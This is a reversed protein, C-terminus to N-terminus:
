YRFMGPKKKAHNRPRPPPTAHQQRPKPPTTLRAEFAAWDEPRIRYSHRKGPDAVDISPLIGARPHGIEIWQIVTAYPVRVRRKIDIPKLFHLNAHSEGRSHDNDKRKMLIIWKGDVLAEAQPQSQVLFDGTM